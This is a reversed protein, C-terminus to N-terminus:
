LFTLAFWNAIRQDEFIFVLGRHTCGVPCHVSLWQDIQESKEQVMPRLTVQHWGQELLFSQMIGFNIEEQMEKALIEVYEEQIDVDNM